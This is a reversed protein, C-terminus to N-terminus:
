WFVNENVSINRGIHCVCGQCFVCHLIYKYKHADEAWPMSMALVLYKNLIWFMGKGRNCSSAIALLMSWLALHRAMWWIVPVKTFSLYDGLKGFVGSVAKM